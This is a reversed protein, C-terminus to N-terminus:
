NAETSTKEENQEKWFETLDIYADYDPLWSQVDQKACWDDLLGQLEAIAEADVSEKESDAHEDLASHVLEAADFGLTIDYCTWVFSPKQLESHSECYYHALDECNRFFRDSSEDYVWKNAYSALPLVSAKQKREIALRAQDIEACDQCYGLSVKKCRPCLCCKEALAELAYLCHCHSCEWCENKLAKM